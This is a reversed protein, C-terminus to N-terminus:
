QQRWSVFSERCIRGQREDSLGLDHEVGGAVAAFCDVHRVYIGAGKAIRIAIDDKEAKVEDIAHHAALVKRMKGDIAVDHEAASEIGIWGM